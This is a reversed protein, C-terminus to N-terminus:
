NNLSLNDNLLENVKENFHQVFQEYYIGTGPGSFGTHISKVKGDKGIFITTPFAGVKNLMPLAKSANGKDSTGAIVFDYKVDLKEIMNKVRGSAYGFDDKKEFALGIVEVGKDKNKEYWPALFKTEDMCNPCWTGFLQLIVVKNKYKEDSLSVMNGNVDPFKFEITEYGPKLYTLSEPNPLTADENKIATWTAKSSKGSLFEGALNGNSDKTATFLYAHNGDFTSLQMKGDVVNGQLYRYDGTATLFTGTVSDGNQKFVGIANTTDKPNIFTVEYKGAFQEIVGQTTDPKFRYGKDFEAKFPIVYDDVDNKIFSGTLTRGDPSVKAKINADFIHLPFDISDDSVFVDDLRLREDANVIYAHYGGGKTNFLDINFPLERGQIELSARWEGTKINSVPTNSKDCSFLIAGIAIAQLYKM